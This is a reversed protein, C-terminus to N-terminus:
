AEFCLAGGYQDRWRTTDNHHPFLWDAGDEALPTSKLRQRYNDSFDGGEVTLGDARIAVLGNFFGHVRAGLIRVGRHGEVRIGQGRLQDWPTGAPAGRLESGRRFRLTIGDAAIQLVGNTNADVLVTGPPIVIECSQTVVTDDHTVRLLPLALAPRVLFLGALLLVPTLQLRLGLGTTARGASARPRPAM